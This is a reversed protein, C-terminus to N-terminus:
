RSPANTSTDQSSAKASISARISGIMSAWPRSTAATYTPLGFAWVRAPM